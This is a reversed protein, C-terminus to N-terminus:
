GEKQDCWRGAGCATPPPIPNACSESGCVVEKRQEPIVSNHHRCLAERHTETDARRSSSSSTKVFCLAIYVYAELVAGEVVVTVYTSGINYM